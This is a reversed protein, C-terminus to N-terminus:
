YDTIIFQKLSAKETNVSQVGTNVNAAMETHYSFPTSQTNEHKTWKRMFFIPMFESFYQIHCTAVTLHIFWLTPVRFSSLQRMYIYVCARLANIGLAEKIICTVIARDHRFM